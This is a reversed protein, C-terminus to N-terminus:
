FRFYLFPNYSANMLSATCLVLAVVCLVPEMWPAHEKLKAGCKRPLATCGLVAIVLLPACSLLEYATWQDYFGHIGFVSGFFSGLQALDTFSFIIWGVFILLLAYLHQLAKPAQKLKQGYVAKELFLFIGYYLGWLAFNWSAGHWLGTLLWVVMLNLFLRGTKVRNGGLPIYVYEKFWAGLTMHWRRWFDSASTALYPLNFNKPLEFGMMRGLGVAMDSYGSFDFYIQLAFCFVGFLAASAPLDTRQQVQDWLEGLPNALLVKKALGVCFLRIGSAVQDENEKREHLQDEVDKYKVIPGAVLQPFMTVYTAFDLINKPGKVEGRYVDITCSLTQFTYFSIGIPLAFGFDVGPIMSSYKFFALIGLNGVLSFGLAVKAALPKKSPDGTTGQKERAREIVNSCTFDLLTSFILITIWVPEGWGYFLLSALLIVVNKVRRPVLYYLVLTGPLFAYLFVLSSFVM